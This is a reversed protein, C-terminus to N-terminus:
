PLFGLIQFICPELTSGIDSFILSSCKLFTHSKQV